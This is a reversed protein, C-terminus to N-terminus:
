VRHQELRSIRHEHDEIRDKNAGKLDHRINEVSVHFEHIIEKKWAKMEEQLGSIRRETKDYYAGMQEMLLGIDRKTAPASSDKPM